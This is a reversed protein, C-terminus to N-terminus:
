FISDLVVFRDDEMYPFFLTLAPYGSQYGIGLFLGLPISFYLINLILNLITRCISLKWNFAPLDHPATDQVLPFGGFFGLVNLIQDVEDLPSQAAM